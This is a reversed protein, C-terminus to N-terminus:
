GPQARQEIKNYLPQRVSGSPNHGNGAASYSAIFAAITRAQLRFTPARCIPAADGSFDGLLHNLLTDGYGDASGRVRESPFTM